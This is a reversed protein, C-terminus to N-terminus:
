RKRKGIVNRGGRDVGNEEVFGALKVMSDVVKLGGVSLETVRWLKEDDPEWRQESGAEM